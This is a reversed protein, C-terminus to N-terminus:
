APAAPDVVRGMFLVAGTELDRLVFLFPKDLRFTVEKAPQPGTCGGTDMGIATAAAATTGKEDVDINAQHIVDSISISAGTADPVHIGTFDARNPDFALPMGLAALALGLESRTDISFKPMFLRLSYPYSGCDGESTGERVDDTLRQREKTLSTTISALGTATLRDEFAALDDPMILTMALPTTQGRGRYRLETAKWGTGSLYPIEQEGRVEMTPVNVSSGDLRRFARNTTGDDLFPRLWNAKLYMANVLYLRTDTSVNPPLLLEPIRHETQRSVWANITRRAAEPTDKYDVLQLGAGFTQAIRDLYAPVVSWGHQAFSTNAIRLSLPHTKGEDDQYTGDRSALAQDLANLGPGLAEWGSTHLVDDIQAATQGEAGARALGLALAISTPSFM